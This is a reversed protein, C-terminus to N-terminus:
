GPWRFRLPNEWSGLPATSQRPLAIVGPDKAPAMLRRDLALADLLADIEGETHLYVWLNSHRLAILELQRVVAMSELYDLADVYNAFSQVQQLQLLVGGRTDPSSVIAYANGLYTGIADLGAAVLAAEGQDSHSDFVEMRQKHLLSWAGLWRGSSTQSYRGIAIADVGYRASAARIKEGDLRWLDDASISLQDQLDLLPVVVPLGRSATVEAVVATLEGPEQLSVQQRGGNIDDKVLWVLVSPRNDPWIPLGARRLTNDIAARSFTLILRSAPLQEDGQQLTETTTEYRYSELLQGARTALQSAAPQQMIDTRGTVRVLVSELARSAAERREADGQSQVLIQQRYLGEVVEAQATALVLLLCVLAAFAPKWLRYM